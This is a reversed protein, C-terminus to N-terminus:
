GMKDWLLICFHFINYLWWVTEVREGEQIIFEYETARELWGSRAHKQCHDESTKLIYSAAPHRVPTCFDGHLAAGAPLRLLDFSFLQFVNPLMEVAERHWAAFQVHSPMMKQGALVCPDVLHLLLRSLSSWNHDM